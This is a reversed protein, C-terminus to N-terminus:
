SYCASIKRAFIILKNQKAFLRGLFFAGQLGLNFINTELYERTGGKPSRLKAQVNTERRHVEIVEFGNNKLFGRISQESFYQLHHIGYVLFLPRTIRGFSLRYIGKVLWHIFSDRAPIEIILLGGPNLMTHIKNIALSPDPLHELLDWLTIVDYQAISEVEELLCEHMSIGYRSKLQNAAEPNPEVGVVSFGYEQALRLFMGLGTGVDLLCRADKHLALIRRLWRDYRKRFHEPIEDHSQERYFGEKAKSMYSSYFAKLFPPQPVPQIFQHGCKKCSVVGLQITELPIGSHNAAYTKNIPYLKTSNDSGCLPCPKYAFFKEHLETIESIQM